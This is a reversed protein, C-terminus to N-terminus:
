ADIGPLPDALPEYMGPEMGAERRAPENFPRKLKGRFGARVLDHWHSELEAGGLGTLQGFWRTATAVHTIEDRYIVSLVEATAEDGLRRMREIMAPTVDLGRAELVMHAVALRATLDHATEMAAEWLGDHAPLDGYDADLDRLRRRLMLFHRAEDDAVRLWDDFFQQPLTPSAFRAVLDVALDIANLEIHAIAHILAVRTARTGGKRRRPMERPPLLEPRPPRAPRVPAAPEGRLRYRGAVWDAQLRRTAEAKEVANAISLVSSAAATLSEEPM